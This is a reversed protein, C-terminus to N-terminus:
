LDTGTALDWLESVHKDEIEIIREDLRQSWRGQKAAADSFAREFAGRAEVDRGMQALAIGREIHLISRRAREATSSDMWFGAVLSIDCFRLKQSGAYRDNRCASATLGATLGTLWCFIFIVIFATLAWKGLRSGTAPSQDTM